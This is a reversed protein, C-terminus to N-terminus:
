NYRKLFRCYSTSFEEEAKIPAFNNCYFWDLGWQEKRVINVTGEIGEIGEADERM